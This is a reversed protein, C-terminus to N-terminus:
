WGPFKSLTQCRGQPCPHATKNVIREEAVLVGVFAGSVCRFSLVPRICLSFGTAKLPGQQKALAPSRGIRAGFSLWGM